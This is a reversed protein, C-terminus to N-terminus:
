SILVKVTEKEELKLKLIKGFEALIQIKQENGKVAFSPYLFFHRNKQLLRYLSSFNVLASDKPALLMVTAGGMGVSSTDQIIGKITVRVPNQAFVSVCCVMFFLFISFKLM